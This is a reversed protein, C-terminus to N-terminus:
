ALKRRKIEKLFINYVKMITKDHNLFQRKHEDIDEYSVKHKKWAQGGSILNQLIPHLKDFSKAFKGEPTEAEEYENYLKLFEQNLDKPLRRFLKKTAKMERKNQTKKGEGDFAFTDGAYIEGLDHILLMRIIKDIDLNKPLDDKFLLAFMATHWSHEADNEYRSLDSILVKREVLKAKDIEKLFNILQNIRKSTM